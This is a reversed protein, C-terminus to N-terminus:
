LIAIVLTDPTLRGGRVRTTISEIVAVGPKRYSHVDDESKALSSCPEGQEGEFLRLPRQGDCHRQLHLTTPVTWLIRDLKVDTHRRIAQMQTQKWNM